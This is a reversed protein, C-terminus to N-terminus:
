ASQTLMCGGLEVCCVRNAHWMGASHLLYEHTLVALVGVGLKHVVGLCEACALRAILCGVCCCRTSYFCFCGLM